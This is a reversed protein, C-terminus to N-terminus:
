QRVVAGYIKSKVHEPIKRDCLVGTLSRWKSWAANVRSNMEVMLNGDSKVASGLYKFVSTRPLEIDNVKISSSENVDKTLYEACNENEGGNPEEPHWFTYDSPSDDSWKWQDGEKKLGIWLFGEYTPTKYLYGNFKKWGKYGEDNSPKVASFAEISASMFIIAAIVVLAEHSMWEPAIQNRKRFTKIIASAHLTSRPPAPRRTFESEIM